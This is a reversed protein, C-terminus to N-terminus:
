LSRFHISPIYSKKCNRFIIPDLLLLEALLFQILLACNLLAFTLLLFYANPYTCFCLFATAGSYKELCITCRKSLMFGCKNYVCFSIYCWSNSANNEKQTATNLHRLRNIGMDFSEFAQCFIMNRLTSKHPFHHKCSTLFCKM